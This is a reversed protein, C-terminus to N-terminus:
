LPHTFMFRAGDEYDSDIWIKGGLRNVIQKSIALGLGAGQKFSNLKGFREFLHKHHDKQIGQGTDTVSFLICDTTYGSNDAKRIKGGAHIVEYKLLISGSETFKNANTLLNLLVQSLRHSDTRVSLSSEGPEFRYEIGEKRIHATTAMVQECLGNIDTEKFIFNLKGTELGSFDLIDTILTLLLKSNQTIVRSMEQREKLSFEEETMLNSFGVIANLPTRIEHSMNALFASKLRDSEEAREKAEKLQVTNEELSKSLKLNRRYIVSFAVISIALIITIASIIYLYNRYKEVRPDQGNIVVSNEPLQYRKVSINDLRKQDFQYTNGTSVFKISDIKGSYFYNIQDTLASADNSYSPIYGGIAGSGLGTGTITFIPLNPNDSTLEEISNGMYYQGDRNVRWTGVIIISNEPLDRVIEKMHPFYHERSDLFSYNIGPPYIDLNKKIYAKLSVGGYTNDTLFVINKTTPYFSLALEITKLPVYQNFVGGAAAKQRMKRSMNVWGPSWSGDIPGEPLDIGNSSIFAGLFPYKKTLTDQSSIASWAEQGIAIVAKVNKGRYKSLLKAIRGKWLHAEETFNKAGLEEILILYNNKYLKKIEKEFSTIFDQTRKTDPNFSSIMLFINADTSGEGDYDSSYKICGSTDSQAKLSSTTTVLLAVVILQLFFVAPAFSIKGTRKMPFTACM